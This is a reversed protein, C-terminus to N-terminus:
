IGQAHKKDHATSFTDGPRQTKYLGRDKHDGDSRDQAIKIVRQIDKAICGSKRGSIDDPHENFFLQCDAKRMDLDDARAPSDDEGLAQTIAAKGYGFYRSATLVTHDTQQIEAHAALLNKSNFFDNIIKILACKHLLGDSAALTKSLTLKGGM